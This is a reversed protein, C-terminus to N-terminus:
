EMDNLSPEAGAEVEATCDDCLIWDVEIFGVGHKVEKGCLSCFTPYGEPQIISLHDQKCMRMILKGPHCAVKRALKGRALMMEEKKIDRIREDMKKRANVAREVKEKHKREIPGM